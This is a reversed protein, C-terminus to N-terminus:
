NGNIHFRFIQIIGLIIISINYLVDEISGNSETWPPGYLAGDEGLAIGKEVAHRIAIERRLWFVNAFILQPLHKSFIVKSNYFLREAAFAARKCGTRSLIAAAIM